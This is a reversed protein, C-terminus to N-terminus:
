GYQIRPDLVGYMIDIIFNIFVICIAALLVVVQVVPYDRMIIGNMVLQGLGPISFVVEIIVTGGVLRGIRMGFLTLVPILANRLGHKMVVVIEALGKSRATRVYDENLVEILASRLQRMVEAALVFGLMTSPMLLHKISLWFDDLPSVYGSAPLIRLWLSFVLILMMGGWFHPIAVGSITFLTGFSDIFTGPRTGSLVGWPVAILLGIIIAYLILQFTIAMRRFAMDLVRHGTRLSRGLDGTLLGSIWSFYQLYIPRDLGLEARRQEVYEDSVRVDGIMALVVDGPLVVCVIFSVMTVLIIVVFSQILRSALFSFLM